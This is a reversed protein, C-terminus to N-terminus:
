NTRGCCKKYKEGSGCPCPDNRKPKEGTNRVQANSKKQGSDAKLSSIREKEKKKETEEKEKQIEIKTKFVFEVTQQNIRFLVDKFAEFSRRKYEVLPDKQAHTMLSLGSRLDDDERLRSNKLPSGM